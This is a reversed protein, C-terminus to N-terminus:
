LHVLHDLKNAFDKPTQKPGRKANQFQLKSDTRVEAPEFYAYITEKLSEYSYSSGLSTIIRSADHGLGQM